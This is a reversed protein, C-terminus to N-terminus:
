RHARELIPPLLELVRDIEHETTPVGLSFRVAERAHEPTQGLALLVPSPKISGSTCAAGTSVSVGAIDLAMVITEGRISPWAANITGGVRPITRLDDDPSSDRLIDAGNIRAGLEVLGAELKAGLAAVRPWDDRSAAACAAGFGVIGLVNETGARRGREQHGAEVDGDDAAPPEISTLLAGAGPPGALKHASLALTDSRITSLDIKGAAQVADVHVLVGMKRAAAILEVVDPMTGLEHNVASIVLVGVDVLDHVAIQVHMHVHWTERARLTATSGHLEYHTRVKRLQDVPGRVSPHDLASCAIVSPLGRRHAEAILTQVALANAESGGSTFVVQERPRGALTAVQNRAREVLDRARRGEAHVSSPNAGPSALAAAMAERAPTGLPASANYDLYIRPNTSM